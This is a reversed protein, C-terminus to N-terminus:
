KTFTPGVRCEKIDVKEWVKNIMYPETELWEDLEKRSPFDFIMVSGIMKQKDDLLAVGMLYNGAAKQKDGLKVHKERSNLRRELADKYDHAIVLFQM